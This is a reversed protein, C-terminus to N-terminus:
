NTINKYLIDLIKHLDCTKIKIKKNNFNNKLEFIDNNEIFILSYGFLKNNDEIIISVTERDLVVSNKYEKDFYTNLTGNIDKFRIDDNFIKLLEEEYNRM